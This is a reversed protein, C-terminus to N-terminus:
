RASRPTDADAQVPGAGIATTVGFRTLLVHVVGGPHAAREGQGLATAAGHGRVRQDAAQEDTVALDDALAPVLAGAPRVPLDGREGDGSPACPAGRGVHRQLWARVGPPGPRARGCQELGTDGGDHDRQRVGVRDGGTARVDQAGRPQLDRDPQEGRLRLRLVRDEQVADGM